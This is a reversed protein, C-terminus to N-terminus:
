EEKALGDLGQLAGEVAFTDLFSLPVEAPGPTEPARGFPVRVKQGKELVLTKGGARIEISDALCAYTTDREADSLGWFLTGRVAAAAAPTKVRFSRGPELKKKLGILFEGIDFAIWTDRRNGKLTFRSNEKVLVAAGDPFVVHALAGAETRIEDGFYLPEGRRAEYFGDAGGTRVQVQGKVQKLAADAGWAPGGALAALCGALWVNKLNM